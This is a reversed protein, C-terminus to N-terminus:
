ASSEQQALWTELIVQAALRDLQEKAARGASQRRGGAAAARELAAHSSLREDILEVPLAHRARLEAAFATVAPALEHASGDMNVPLGVVLTQPRWQEVLRAIAAWDPQADRSGLTVLPRAAGTVTQGVAVGIRRTGFDFGLVTGGSM